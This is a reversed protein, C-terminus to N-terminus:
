YSKMKGVSHIQKLYNEAYVSIIKRFLVSWSLLTLQVSMNQINEMTGNKTSYFLMKSAPEAEMM